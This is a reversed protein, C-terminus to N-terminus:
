TTGGDISEFLTTFNDQYAGGGIVVVNPNGSDVGIAMDYYCQSNCFGGAPGTISTWTAGGNVTKFMGLLNSSTTSSDAIAAYLTAGGGSIGPAYGLTIKGVNTTPLISTQITWTAGSDTSRYIGNISEDLPNGMAMWATATQTAVSTPEFVVSTAALGQPSADELWTNGGDTSRYIGGITGNM